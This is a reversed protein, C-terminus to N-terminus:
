REVSRLRRLAESVRGCETLLKDICEQPWSASPSRLSDEIRSCLTAMDEAGFSASPSRLAQVAAIMAPRDRNQQAAVVASVMRPADELFLDVLERLGADAHDGMLTRLEQWVSSDIPQLSAEHGPATATRQEMSTAAVVVPQPRYHELAHVLHGPAIPKSVFDNMGAALCAERDERRAHATMAIIWPQAPLAPLARIARTAAYGDMGPMQVDMFVVDYPHEEVMRLADEGSAAVEARYGLRQLLLVALKRNV